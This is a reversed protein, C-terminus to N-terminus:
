WYANWEDAAPVYEVSFDREPYMKQLEELKGYASVELFTAAVGVCRSGYEDCISEIIEFM